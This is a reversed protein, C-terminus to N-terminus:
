QINILELHRSFLSQMNNINSDVEHSFLFIIYYIFLYTFCIYQILEVHISHRYLTLGQESAPIVAINLESENRTKKDTKQM